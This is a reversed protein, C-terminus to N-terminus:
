LKQLYTIILQETCRVFINCDDQCIEIPCHMVLRQELIRHVGNIESRIAYRTM